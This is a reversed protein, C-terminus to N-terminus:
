PNQQGHSSPCRGCETESRDPESRDRLYLKSILPLFLALGFFRVLQHTAVFAPDLGLVVALITMAEIGGPAFAVILQGLPLGLMWSVCLASAASITVAILFAAISPALAKRVFALNTGIFRMGIIAGLILQGPILIVSPIQGNVIGSLHLAASAFMGGFLAGAPFNRKELVFGVVGGLVLLPLMDFVGGVERPPLAPPALSLTLLSPLLALLMALRFMQALMVQRVDASSRMSLALVHSLAGPISAYFATARNWKSHNMLFAASAAIVLLITIGLGALSLPWTVVREITHPSFGSGIQIGLALFVAFRLADPLYLPAKSFALITTVLMAGTLWAAPMGLLAFVAGGAASAALTLAAAGALKMDITM